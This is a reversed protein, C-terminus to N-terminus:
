TLKGFTVVDSETLSLSYLSNVTTLVYTMVTENITSASPEGPLPLWVGITEFDEIGRADVFVPVYAYVSDHELAAIEVYLKAM